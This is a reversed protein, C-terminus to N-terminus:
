FHLATGGLFETFRRSPPLLPTEYCVVVVEYQGRAVNYLYNPISADYNDRLEIKTHIDAAVVIPSRTTSQFTVDHGEVELRQALKFPLYLFEGTGLVLIRAPRSPIFSLDITRPLAPLDRRGFRGHNNELQSGPSRSEIFHPAPPTPPGRKAEFAYRGELVSVFRASLELERTVQRRREAGLWDTITVFTVSDLGASWSKAAQTLNVFTRGSSVEDDIVVLSRATELMRLDAPDVPRHLFHDPAHSHPESFSLTVASSTTYRTSHIFLTDSRGTAEVFREYISQGLGIATEALAVFLVPGHVEPDLAGALRRHIPDMRSPPVPHHKGLVKSVFLFGRQANDRAAFGCLDDLPVDSREVEVTLAGSPLDVARREANM